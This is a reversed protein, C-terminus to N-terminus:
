NDVGFKFNQLFIYGFLVLLKEVQLVVALNLARQQLYHCLLKLWSLKLNILSQHDLARCDLLWKFFTKAFWLECGLIKKIKHYKLFQRRYNEVDKHTHTHSLSLSLSLTRVRPVNRVICTVVGGVSDGRVRVADIAAIMKEAYEPDPCRVINSEIQCHEM